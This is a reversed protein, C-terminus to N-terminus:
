FRGGPLVDLEYGHLRWEIDATSEVRIALLRGAVRCDIKQTTGITYLVPTAWTVSGDIQDQTGITISVQGGDTGEIRPWIARIFKYASFDPAKGAVFPVAIGTREVSSTMASGSFQNTSETVTLTTATPRVQVLSNEAAGFPRVDWVETQAEWVGSASAWAPAAESLLGPEIHTVDSLQRFALTNDQWNWVLAMNPFANGDLPFCFWVEHKAQFNVAFSRAYYTQDLNAALWKRMRGDLISVVQQGDHKVIDGVCFVAHLGPRYEVACRRSLIGLQKSLAAFRFINIGGIYQMTFIADEKYVVNVDRLPICDVVFGPTEALSYEGADKTDDTEDWSDPLAGPDAPHSWKVMQPYRTGSKTVDLAVLFNRFPRMAGCVWNADWNSLMALKTGVDVPQWMQPVDVGNNLVPVGNLIGGTWNQEANATYDVDVGLAQRTINTHTAGNFVYVKALGAYLWYYALPQQVAMAWYPVISPTQWLEEGRFKEVYNDTFRVNQASSWAELPLEHPKKDKIVGLSGVSDIPILAM